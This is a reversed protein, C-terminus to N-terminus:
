GRADRCCAVERPNPKLNSLWECLTDRGRDSSLLRFEDPLVWAYMEVDGEFDFAYVDRDMFTGPGVTRVRERPREVSTPARLTQSVESISEWTVSQLSASLSCSESAVTHAASPTHGSPISQSEDASCPVFATHTPTTPLVIGASSSIPLFVCASFAGDSWWRCLPVQVPQTLVAVYHIQLSRAWLHCGQCPRFKWKRETKMMKVCGELTWLKASLLLSSSLETGTPGLSPLECGPTPGLSGEHLVESKVMIKGQCHIQIDCEQLAIEAGGSPAPVISLVGNGLGEVLAKDGIKKQEM